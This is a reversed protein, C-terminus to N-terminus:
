YETEEDAAPVPTDRVVDREGSSIMEYLSECHEYVEKPTFGLQRISLNYYEQNAKNVDPVAKVEYVRSFRDGGAMNVMTNFKRNVKMKSKSMSLVVDEYKETETDIICGFHQATDVIEYEDGYGKEAFEAEAAEKSPFAGMFGGGSDQSKWIVWEKRFYVPVFFLNEGYLRGTVSNFLMGPEAGEIYEPKNKKHQPSLDQIVDIRPITMDEMGVNEQGRGSDKMYDPQEMPFQDEVTAVAKTEKTKAM